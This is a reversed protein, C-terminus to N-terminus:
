VGSVNLVKACESSLVDSIGHIQLICNIYFGTYGQWM